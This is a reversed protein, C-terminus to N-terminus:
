LLQDRVVAPVADVRAGLMEDEGVLEREGEGDRDRPAEVAARVGREADAGVQGVIQAVLRDVDDDLHSLAVALRHRFNGVRRALGDALVRAVQAVEALHEAEFGGLLDSRYYQPRLARPMS